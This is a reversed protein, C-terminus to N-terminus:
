SRIIGVTHLNTREDEGALGDDDFDLALQSRSAHQSVLSTYKDRKQTFLDGNVNINSEYIIELTKVTSLERVQTRDLLDAVVYKQKKENFIGKEDLWNMIWEQSKLHVQNWSSWRKPLYQDIESEYRYLDNDNSFLNQSALDVVTITKTFNQTSPLTTNLRLTITISGAAFFIWDIYKKSSVNFWTVGGDLSLEHSITAFTLAPALFSESVDVRIKDGTFVKDDCKIVGFISM